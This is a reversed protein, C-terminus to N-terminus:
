AEMMCIVHWIVCASVTHVLSLEKALGQAVNACVAREALDMSDVVFTPVSVPAATFILSSPLCVEVRVQVVGDFVPQKNM